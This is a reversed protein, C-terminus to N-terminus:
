RHTGSAKKQKASSAQHPLTKAFRKYVWGGAQLRRQVTADSVRLGEQRFHDRMLAVTWGAELYGYHSPSHALLTELQPERDGGHLPPRGPPPTNSLGQVGQAQDASLGNRMTHDNRELRQAMQPVSLDPANLLVYHCREAVQSRSTRRPQALYAYEQPSLQLRMM